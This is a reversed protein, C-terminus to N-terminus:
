EKSDVVAVSWYALVICGVCFLVEGGEECFVDVLFADVGV